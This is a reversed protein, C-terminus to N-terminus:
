GKRKKPKTAVIQETPMPGICGGDDDSDETLKEDEDAGRKLIKNEMEASM